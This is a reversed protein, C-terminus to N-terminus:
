LQLQAREHWCGSTPPTAARALAVLHGYATTKGTGTPGSLGIITGAKFNDALVTGFYSQNLETATQIYPVWTAARAKQEDRKAKRAEADAKQKDTKTNPKQGVTKATALKAFAPVKASAAPKRKPPQYGGLEKAAHFLSGLTHNGALKSLSKFKRSWSCNWQGASGWASLMSEAQSGYENIVGAVAGILLDYTNGGPMYPPLANIAAMVNSLQEDDSVGESFRAAQARRENLEELRRADEKAKWDIAHQIFGAPLTISDDLL